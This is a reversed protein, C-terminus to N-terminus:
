YRFYRAIRDYNEINIYQEYHPNFIDNIFIDFLDGGRPFGQAVCYQYLPGYQKIAAVMPNVVQSDHWSGPFNICAYLIKGTPAFLFVNNCYKDHGYGNYDMAQAEEAENSCQQDM